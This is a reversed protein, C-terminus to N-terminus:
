AKVRDYTEKLKPVTTFNSIETPLIWVFTNHEWDLQINEIKITNTKIEFLFPYVIWIIGIENDSVEFPDGRKILIIQENTIKLEEQIETLARELPDENTELYGSCAAWRGKYTGVKSSRQLLLIKGHFRLFSTVIAKKDTL